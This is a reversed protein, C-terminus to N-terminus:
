VLSFPSSSPFYLWWHTLLIGTAERFRARFQGLIDRFNVTGPPWKIEWDGLQPLPTWEELLCTPHNLESLWEQFSVRLVKVKGMEELSKYASLEKRHTIIDQNTERKLMHVRVLASWWSLNLFFFLSSSNGIYLVLLLSASPSTVSWWILRISM